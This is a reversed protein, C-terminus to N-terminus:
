RTTTDGCVAIYRSLRGTFSTAPSPL